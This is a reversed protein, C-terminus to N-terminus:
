PSDELVCMCVHPLGGSVHALGSPRVHVCLRLQQALRPVIGIALVACRLM